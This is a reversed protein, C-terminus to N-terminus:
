SNPPHPPEDTEVAPRDAPQRGRAFHGADIAQFRLRTEVIDFVLRAFEDDSPHECAHRPRAAIEAV